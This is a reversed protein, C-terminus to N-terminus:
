YCVSLGRGALTTAAESGVVSVISADSIAPGDFVDFDQGSWSGSQLSLNARRLVLPM